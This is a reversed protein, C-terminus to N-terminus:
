HSSNGLLEPSGSGPLRRGWGTLWHVPAPMERCWAPGPWPMPCTRGLSWGSEPLLLPCPPDIEPLLVSWRTFNYCEQKHQDYILLRMKCSSKLRKKRRICDLSSWVWTTVLRFVMEIDDLLSSNAALAKDVSGLEGLRFFWNAAAARNSGPVKNRSMEDRQLLVWNCDTELTESSLLTQNSASVTIM